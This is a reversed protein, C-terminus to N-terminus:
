IAGQNHQNPGAYSSDNTAVKNITMVILLRLFSTRTVAVTVTFAATAMTMAMTTVGTVGTVGTVTVAVTVTVTVTVAVAVIVIVIVIVLLDLQGHLERWLLQFVEVSDEILQVFVMIAFQVLIFYPSEGFQQIYRRRVLDRRRDCLVVLIVVGFDIELLEKQLEGSHRSRRACTLQAIGIFFIQSHLEIFHVAVFVTEDVRILRYFKRTVIVHRRRGCQVRNYRM